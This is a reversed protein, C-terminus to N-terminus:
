GSMRISLYLAWTKEAREIGQQAESLCRKYGNENNFYYEEGIEQMADYTKRWARRELDSM